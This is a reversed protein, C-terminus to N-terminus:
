TVPLVMLRSRSPRFMVWAWSPSFIPTLLLVMELHSVALPNGSTDRSSGRAEARPTDTSSSILPSVMHLPLREALM